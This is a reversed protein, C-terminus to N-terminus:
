REVGSREPEKGGRKWKEEKVEKRKEGEYGADNKGREKHYKMEVRGADKGGGERSVERRRKRRTGTNERRGRRRGETGEMRVNRRREIGQWRNDRHIKNRKRDKTKKIRKKRSLSVKTKKEGEEEMTKIKMM